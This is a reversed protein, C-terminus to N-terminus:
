EYDIAADVADWLVAAWFLEVLSGIVIWAEDKESREDEVLEEWDITTENIAIELEIFRDRAGADNIIDL